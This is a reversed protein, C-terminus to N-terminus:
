KNSPKSDDISAVNAPPSIKDEVTTIADNWVTAFLKYGADNPHIGDSSLHKTIDMAKDIDALAIKKDTTEMYDSVVNRIQESAAESCPGHDRSQVLTSAIVTVGPISDFIDDLVAKYRTGM